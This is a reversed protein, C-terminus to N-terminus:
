GFVEYAGEISRALLREYATDDDEKSGSEGQQFLNFRQIKWQVDGFDDSTHVSM